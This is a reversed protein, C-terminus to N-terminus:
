PVVDTLHYFIRYAIQCFGVIAASMVLPNVIKRRVIRGSIDVIFLCFATLQLFRLIRRLCALHDSPQGNKDAREQSM